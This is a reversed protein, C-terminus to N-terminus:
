LNQVKNALFVMLTRDYMWIDVLHHPLTGTYESVVVVCFVRNVTSIEQTTKEKGKILYIINM